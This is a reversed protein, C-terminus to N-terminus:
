SSHVGLCSEGGEDVPPASAILNQPKLFCVGGQVSETFLWWSSPQEYGSTVLQREGVLTKQTGIGPLFTDKFESCSSYNGQVRHRLTAKLWRAFIVKCSAQLSPSSNWPCFNGRFELLSTALLGAVCLHGRAKSSSLSRLCGVSALPNAFSCPPAPLARPFSCHAPGCRARRGRVM